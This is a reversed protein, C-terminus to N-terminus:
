GARVTYVVLVVTLAVLVISLVNLTRASRDAAAKFDKLAAVLRSTMEQEVMRDFPYRNAYAMKRWTEFLEGDAMDRLESPKSPFTHGLENEHEGATSVGKM